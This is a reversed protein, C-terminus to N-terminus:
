TATLTGASAALPLLNLADSVPLDSTGLAVDFAVPLAVNVMALFPLDILYVIEALPRLPGACAMCMWKPLFPTAPGTMMPMQRLGQENGFLPVSVDFCNALAGPTLLKAAATLSM